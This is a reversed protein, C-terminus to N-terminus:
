NTKINNQYLYEFAKYIDEFDIETMISYFNEDLHEITLRYITDVRDIKVSVINNM